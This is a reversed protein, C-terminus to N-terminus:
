IVVFAGFGSYKVKEDYTKNLETALVKWVVGHYLGPGSRVM